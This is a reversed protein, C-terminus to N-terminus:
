DQCELNDMTSAASMPIVETLDGGQVPSNGDVESGNEMEVSKQAEEEM